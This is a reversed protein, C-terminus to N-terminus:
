RSGWCNEKCNIHGLLWSRSRTVVGYRDNALLEERYCEKEREVGSLKRLKGVNWQHQHCAEHILVGAISADSSEVATHQIEMVGMHVIQYAFAGVGRLTNADFVKEWIERIVGVYEYYFPMNQKLFRYAGAMKNVFAQSGKIPPLQIDDTSETSETSVSPTTTSQVPEVIPKEEAVRTTKAIWRASGINLWCYDTQRISRSVDIEQGSGLIGIKAQDTSPERRINMSYIVYASDHPYCSDDAVQAQVIDQQAIFVLCVFYLIVKHFNPQTM